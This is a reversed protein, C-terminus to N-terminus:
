PRPCSELLIANSLMIIKRDVATVDTDCDRDPGNDRVHIPDNDLAHNPVLDPDIDPGHDIDPDYRHGHDIDRWNDSEQSSDSDLDYDSHPVAMITRDCATVDNLVNDPDNDLDLAHYFLKPPLQSKLIM